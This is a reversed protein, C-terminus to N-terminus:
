EFKNVAAWATAWAAAMWVTLCYMAGGVMVGLGVPWLTHQEDSFYRSDSTDETYAMLAIGAIVVALFVFATVVQVLGAWTEVAGVKKRRRERLYNEAFAAKNTPQEDDAFSM